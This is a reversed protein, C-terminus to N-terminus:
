LYAMLRGAVIAGTWAMLSVGALRGTGDPPSEVELPAPTQGWVAHRLRGAALVAVGICTLKAWFVPQMGKTSADAAFLLVGTGVNIALGAWMLPFVRVLPGLPVDRGAGLVRLAVVANLGVVMALGATHLALILPYGWVSPSERVWTAVSTAELAALINM